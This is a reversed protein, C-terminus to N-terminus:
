RDPRKKFLGGLGFYLLTNIAELQLKNFGKPHNDKKVYVFSFTVREEGSGLPTVRHWVNTGCFFVLLGPTVRLLRRVPTKGPTKKFTVLELLSSSRDILGLIISYAAQPECGCDDYHWKIHDGRETYTYLASAHPDDPQRAELIPGDAVRQFMARLIPSEQLAYLQPAQARITPHSIAGGKRVFPLHSRRAQPMLSRAERVLETLLPAPVFDPLVLIEDEAFRQRLGEVDLGRVRESLIHETM